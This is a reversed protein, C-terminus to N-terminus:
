EDGGGLAKRAADVPFGGLATLVTNQIMVSLDRNGSSQADVANQTWNQTAGRHRSVMGELAERLRANEQTLTELTTAAESLMTRVKMPMYQYTVSARLRETLDTLDSAM